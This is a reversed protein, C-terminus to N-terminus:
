AERLYSKINFAEGYYKQYRSVVGALEQVAGFLDECKLNVSDTDWPEAGLYIELHGRYKKM